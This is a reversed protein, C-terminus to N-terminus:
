FTPKGTNFNLGSPVGINLNGLEPISTAMMNTAATNSMMSGGGNLLGPTSASGGKLMSTIFPNILSKIYFTAISSLLTIIFIKVYESTEYDKYYMKEYAKLMITTIISIIFAYVISNTSIM